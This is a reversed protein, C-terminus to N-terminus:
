RNPRDANLAAAIQKVIKANVPECKPRSFIKYQSLHPLGVLLLDSGASKFRARRYSANPWGTEIPDPEELLRAGYQEFAEHMLEYAPAGLCLVASPAVLDLIDAWLRQSFETSGTRNPLLRWRPARFPSFNTTLTTDMLRNTEIALEDALACFLLRIQVQIPKLRGEKGWAEIRYANGSEVSEIPPRYESGGPNAGVLALRTRSRLTKRPTYLFRWGLTHGLDDYASEITSVLRQFSSM